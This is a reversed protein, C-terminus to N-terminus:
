SFLDNWMAEFRDLDDPLPTFNALMARVYGPDAVAYAHRRGQPRMELLGAALLLSLHYGVSARPLDLRRALDKPSSPGDGLLLLALRLAPPRRMLCLFELDRRSWKPKGVAPFFRAYGALQVRQVRGEEELSALHYAALRSSLDLRRELERVHVGPYRRVFGLVQARVASM